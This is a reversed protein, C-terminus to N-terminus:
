EEQQKFIESGEPCHPRFECFKCLPGLKPEGPEGNIIRSSHSVLADLNLKGLGVSVVQITESTINILKAQINKLQIRPNLITLAHAYLELQNQYAEHLVSMPKTRGTVKFDVISYKTQNGVSEMVVRDISGVLVEKKFPVEFPLEVWVDRGQELDAPAMWPSVKVWELLPSASFHAKPLEQEIAKLSEYDGRALALHVRNGLEQFAERGEPDQDEETELNGAAEDQNRDHRPRIFSWDYARPCRSLLNWETVSHRPRTKEIWHDSCPQIAARPILLSSANAEKKHLSDEGSLSDGGTRSIAELVPVETASNEIWGRWHDQTLTKEDFQTTKDDGFDPAEPTEPSEPCVLVLRHQARTLAVYFLRKSEDLSKKKEIERWQKEVPDSKDRDGNEDRGGLYIGDVRDWFLLPADSSKTKIGFDILIVNKFELGKAGHLTLVTLQGLNRPAPVERERRNKQISSALEMVAAHFDLGRSSHDEVRHWLGLLPAGLEDEIESNVLLALLLEGPRVIRKLFPRLAEALPHTSSFFLEKLTQDTRMWQDLQQDPIGVWPARLFVMGSLRNESNDWWKLFAVLERIRPDEWFLGGSGVAIPIGSAHLAKLWKENGRIKRLLLAFNQLPIGESVQKQIWAGLENPNKVRLQVVPDLGEIPAKKPILAEFKLQSAAFVRECVENTYDIIGAVSRFNWTLSKRIALQSCFEEFVSVDADRFRYISQKPDGVVCLNSADPRVLKRIIKAQLPNTDQFEDVLVLDFRRHYVERVTPNELARDAGLELDNFDIVGQRKKLRVYRELVFQSVTLLDQTARDKSEALFRQVGLSSLEKVRKLLDALGDRSERSLLGELSNFVPPPLEDLWLADIASNWYADGEAESLVSEEGDLGAERPFERIIAASLGHITTIWHPNLAGRGNIKFLVESLKSKLDSASRETFSVAAFRAKPNLEMLRACKAVLTTTKGSGAGALVAMGDGWAHIISEQEPSFQTVDNEKLAAPPVTRIM